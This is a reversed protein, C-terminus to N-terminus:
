KAEPGKKFMASGVLGGICGGITSTLILGFIQQILVALHFEQDGMEDISDTVEEGMEDVVEPPLSELLSRFVNQYTEMGIQHDFVIWLADYVLTSLGYGVLGCLVGVKMGQPISLSIGYRKTYDYVGVLAALILPLCCILLSFPFLTLVFAVAGGRILSPKMPCDDLDRFAPEPSPEPDPFFDSM